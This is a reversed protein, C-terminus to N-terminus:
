DHGTESFLPRWAFGWCALWAVALALWQFAYARHRDPTIAVALAAVPTHSYGGTLPHEPALLWPVLPQRWRAAWVAPEIRGARWLGDRLEPAGLTVFASPLRMRGTLVIDSPIRVPVAPGNDRDTPAWGLDVLVARDSGQPLFAMYIDLGAKGQHMRNDLAVRYDPLFHGSLRVQRGAQAGGARSAAAWDLAPLAAQAAMRTLLAQKEGARQWQWCSLALLLLFVTVLLLWTRWGPQRGVARGNTAQSM